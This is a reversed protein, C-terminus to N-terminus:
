ALASMDASTLRLGMDTARGAKLAKAVDDLISGRFKEFIKLYDANPRKERFRGLDDTAEQSLYVTVANGQREVAFPLGDWM